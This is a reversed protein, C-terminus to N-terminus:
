HSGNEVVKGPLWAFVWSSYDKYVKLIKMPFAGGGVPEPAATGPPLPPTPPSIWYAHLVKPTPALLRRHTVRTAPCPGGGRSEASDWVGM